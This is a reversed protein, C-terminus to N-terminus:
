LDLSKIDVVKPPLTLVKLETVLRLCNHLSTTNYFNRSFNNLFYFLHTRFNYFM